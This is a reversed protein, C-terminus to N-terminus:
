GIWRVEAPRPYITVHKAMVQRDTPNDPRRLPQLFVCLDTVVSDVSQPICYVPGYPFLSRVCVMSNLSLFSCTMVTTAM